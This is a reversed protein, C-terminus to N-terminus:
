IGLFFVLLESAQWPWALMAAAPICNALVAAPRAVTESGFSERARMLPCLPARM